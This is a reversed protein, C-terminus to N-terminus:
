KDKKKGKKSFSFSEKKVEKEVIGQAIMEKHLVKWAKAANTNPTFPAVKNAKMEEVWLIFSEKDFDKLGKLNFEINEAIM